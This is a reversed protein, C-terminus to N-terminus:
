PVGQFLYKAKPGTSQERLLDTLFMALLVCQLKYINICKEYEGLLSNPFYEAEM